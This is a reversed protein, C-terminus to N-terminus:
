ARWHALDRGTLEEVRAISPGFYEAMEARFQAGLPPPAGKRRLRARLRGLQAAASAPLASKVAPAVRGVAQAAARGSRRAVSSGNYRTGVDFGFAPDAGVFSCFTALYDAPHAELDDYLSVLVQERPFVDLYRDVQPGYDSLRLLHTGSTFPTEPLGREAECAERFATRVQEAPGTYTYLFHSYSREVPHRLVMAVRADPNAARILHPSRQAYLYLVSVDGTLQGPAADDFLARYRAPDRVSKTVIREDDVLPRPGGGTDEFLFFSPEKVTATCIGPHQSLYYHLSTTGCRPAGVVVFDPLATQTM